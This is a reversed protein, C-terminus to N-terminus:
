QFKSRKPGETNDLINDPQEKINDELSHHDISLQLKLHLNEELLNNSLERERCLMQNLETISQDLIGVIHFLWSGFM